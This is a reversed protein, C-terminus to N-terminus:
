ILPASMNPGSLAEEMAEFGERIPGYRQELKFCHNACDRIRYGGRNTATVAKTVTFTFILLQASGPPLSGADKALM